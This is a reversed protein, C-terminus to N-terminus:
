WVQPLTSPFGHNSIWLKWNCSGPGCGRQRHLDSQCISSRSLHLVYGNVNIKSEDIGCVKEAIRVVVSFAENFEFQAIDNITLNAKSLAIPLVKTPAEPFDIPEVGGDAWASSADFDHFIAAFTM